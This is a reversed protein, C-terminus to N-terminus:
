LFICSLLFTGIVNFISVLYAFLTLYILRFTLSLWYKTIPTSYFMILDTSFSNNRQTEIRQPKNSTANIAAKSAKIRDGITLMVKSSKKRSRSKKRGRNIASRSPMSMGGSGSSPTRQMPTQQLFHPLFTNTDNPSDPARPEINTGIGGNNASYIAKDDQIHVNSIGGGILSGEHMYSSKMSYMSFCYM